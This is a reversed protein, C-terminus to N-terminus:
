LPRREHRKKKLRKDRCGTCIWKKGRRILNGHQSHYAAWREALDVVLERVREYHATVIEALLSEGDQFSGLEKISVSGSFEKWPTPEKSTAKKM